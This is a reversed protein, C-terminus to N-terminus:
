KKVFSPITVFSAPDELEIVGHGVAAGHLFTLVRLTALQAKELAADIEIEITSTHVDGPAIVFDEAFTGLEIEEGDKEGFIYVELTAQGAGLGAPSCPAGDVLCKGSSTSIEGTIPKSTDLTLPVAEIASWSQGLDERTLLGAQEFATYAPGTDVYWCSNDPGDQLSLTNEEDCANDHLFFQQEVAVPKKKKKKKKGAQVPGMLNFILGAVLGLVLLKRM